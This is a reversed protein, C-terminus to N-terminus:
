CHGRGVEGGGVRGQDEGVIIDLDGHTSADELALSVGCASLSVVSREAALTSTSGIQAVRRAFAHTLTSAQESRVRAPELALVHLGQEGVDAATTAATRSRTASSESVGVAAAAGAAPPAAAPPAAAAASSAGFSSFASSFSSDSYTTGQSMQRMDAADPGSQGAHSVLASASVVAAVVHAESQEVLRM